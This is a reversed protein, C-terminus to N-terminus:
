IVFCYSSYFCCFHPPPPPSFCHFHPPLPPPFCYFHPPPPPPLPLCYFHPPPPPPSFVTSIHHHNYITESNVCSHQFVFNLRPDNYPRYLTSKKTSPFIYLTFTTTSYSSIIFNHLLSFFHPLFILFIISSSSFLFSLSSPLYFM